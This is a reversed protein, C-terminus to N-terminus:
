DQLSEVRARFERDFLLLSKLICHHLVVSSVFTLYTGFSTVQQHGVSLQLFLEPLLDVVGVSLLSKLVDSLLDSTEELTLM